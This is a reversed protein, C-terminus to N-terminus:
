AGEKTLRLHPRSRRDGIEQITIRLLGTASLVGLAPQKEVLHFMKPSNSVAQVFIDDRFGLKGHMSLRDKGDIV